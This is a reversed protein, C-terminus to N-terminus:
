KSNIVGIVLAALILGMTILNAIKQMGDILRREDIAEVKICFENDAVRGLITNIQGPLEELTEKVELINSFLGSPSLSSIMREQM